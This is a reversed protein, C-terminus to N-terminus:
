FYSGFMSGSSQDSTNSSNSDNSTGSTERNNSEAETLPFSAIIKDIEGSEFLENIELRDSIENYKPFPTVASSQLFFLIRAKNFNRFWEIREIARERNGDNNSFLKNVVDLFNTKFDNAILNGDRDYFVNDDNVEDINDDENKDDDREGEMGERNDFIYDYNYYLFILVYCTLFFSFLMVFKFIFDKNDKVKLFIM